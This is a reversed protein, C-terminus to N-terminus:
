IAMPNRATKTKLEGPTGHKRSEQAPPEADDHTISVRHKDRAHTEQRPTGARGTKAESPTLHCRPNIDSHPNMESPNTDM